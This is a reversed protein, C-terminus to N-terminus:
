SRNLSRSTHQSATFPNVTDQQLQEELNIYSQRTISMHSSPPKHRTSDEDKDKIRFPTTNQISLKPNFADLLKNKIAASNRSM